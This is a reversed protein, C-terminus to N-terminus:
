VGQKGDRDHGTGITVEYAEGLEGAYTGSDVVLEQAVWVATGGQRLRPRFEDLTELAQHLECAM